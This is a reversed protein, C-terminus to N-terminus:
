KLQWEEPHGSEHTRDILRIWDPVFVFLNSQENENKLRSSFPFKQNYLQHASEIKGLATILHAEGRMQVSQLDRWGGAMPGISISAQPSSNLDKSIQSDPDAFFFLNSNEDAAFHLASVHPFGDEGVTALTLMPMALLDQLTQAQPTAAPKSLGQWSRYAQNEIGIRQLVRGAIQTIMEDLSHPQVYFAPVPPFIVAGSRAALRMLRIHGAHLPAERVVLILPRGEKLTVDAARTLLNDNYSNAIASLSKISCPIVVMGATEFSGSAIIAGVDQHSYHAQCLEQIEKLKWHTEQEITIAASPTVVLHTEVPSNQLIELLRIGLIVGSSGSIGVVLRKREM